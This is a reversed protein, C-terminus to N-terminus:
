PRYSLIRAILPAHQAPSTGPQTLWQWIDWDDEELLLAFHHMEEDNCLPLYHSAFPGLVGDTEKCGRHWSQYLLKKRTDDM